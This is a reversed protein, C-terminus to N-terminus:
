LQVHLIHMKDHLENSLFILADCEQKLLQFTNSVNENVM